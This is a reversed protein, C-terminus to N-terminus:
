EPSCRLGLQMLLTRQCQLRHDVLQIHDRLRKGAAMSMWQSQFLVFLESPSLSDLHEGLDRVFAKIFSLTITKQSEGIIFQKGFRTAVESWHLKGQKTLAAIASPPKKKQFKNFTTTQLYEFIQGTSPMLDISLDHMECTKDLLEMLNNDTWFTRGGEGVLQGQYTLGIRDAVKKQGGFRTVVGRVADPLTTQKPMLSQDGLAIAHRRLFEELNNFDLWYGSGVNGQAKCIYDYHYNFEKSTIELGLEIYLESREKLNMKMVERAFKTDKHKNIPDEAIPLRGTSEIWGCVEVRKAKYTNSEKQAAIRDGWEKIDVELLNGVKNM